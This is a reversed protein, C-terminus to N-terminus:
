RLLFMILVTILAAVLYQIYYNRHNIKVIKEPVHRLILSSFPDFIYSLIKKFIRM